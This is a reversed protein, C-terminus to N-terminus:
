IELNLLCYIKNELMEFGKVFKSLKDFGLLKAPGEAKLVGL